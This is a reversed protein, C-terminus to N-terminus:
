MSLFALVQQAFYSAYQFIGGHSSNPYIILQANPLKHGNVVLVPIDLGGLRDFSGEEGPTGEVTMWGALQQAQAKLGVAGDAYGQSLWTAPEEGCTAASREHVRAWWDEAAVVGAADDVFFLKKFTDVGVVQAGAVELVDENGSRRVGEGASPTTGALVLRRVRVRGGTVGEANLAVLQAVMGGLSFGLVDMEREGLGALFALVDGASEGVSRAVRGTSLGVGAYDVLLLRRHAALANLLAPDYKDM